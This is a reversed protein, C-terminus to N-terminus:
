TSAKLAGRCPSVLNFAWCTCAKLAQEKTTIGGDVSLVGGKPPKRFSREPILKVLQALRMWSTAWPM